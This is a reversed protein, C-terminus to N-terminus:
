IMNAEQTNRQARLNLNLPVYSVIYRMNMHYIKLVCAWHSLKSTLITNSEHLIEPQSIPKTVSITSSIFRKHAFVNLGLRYPCCKASSLKLRIKKLPFTQTGILIESSNTGLPGILLIGTLMSEPLPKHGSRRWAMVQVLTSVIWQRLYADGPMLANFRM